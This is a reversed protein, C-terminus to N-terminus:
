RNLKYTIRKNKKFKPFNDINYNLGNSNRLKGSSIHSYEILKNKKYKLILDGFWIRTSDINYQPTLHLLGNKVEKMSFIFYFHGRNSHIYTLSDTISIRDFNYDEDTINTYTGCQPTLITCGLPFICTSILIIISKNM